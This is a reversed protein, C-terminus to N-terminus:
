FSRFDATVCFITLIISDDNIYLMIINLILKVLISMEILTMIMVIRMIILIRIMILIHFLTIIMDCMFMILVVSM